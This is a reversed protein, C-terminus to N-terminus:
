ATLWPWVKEIIPRYDHAYTGRNYMGVRNLCCGDSYEVLSNPRKSRREPYLTVLSDRNKASLASHDYLYDTQHMSTPSGTFSPLTIVADVALKRRPDYCPGGLTNPSTGTTNGHLRNRSTMSGPLISGWCTVRQPSKPTGSQQGWGMQERNIQKATTGDYSSRNPNVPSSVRLGYKNMDGAELARKFLKLQDIGMLSVDQSRHGAPVHGGAGRRSSKAPMTSSM